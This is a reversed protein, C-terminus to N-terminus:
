PRPSITTVATPISVSSPFIAPIIFATPSLLVGNCCFRSLNLLPRAMAMIIILAMTNASYKYRPVLGSSASINATASATAAIGSANPDITVM